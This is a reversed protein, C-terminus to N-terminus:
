PLSGPALRRIAALGLRGVLAEDASHGKTLVCLVLRQGGPTETILVDHRTASTWGAKSYLPWAAPLDGGVFGKTQYDNAGAGTQNARRDLLDMMRTRQPKAHWIGLDIAAMMQLGSEATMANRLEMKPGYGQKERGYPGENWTKQNANVGTFGRATLWENVRNRKRMWAKLEKAPLEPGGTTDTLTELVLGTADNTSERIMDTEARGLEPTLRLTKRALADELAALYFLKVVSAPYFSEGGRFSGFVM